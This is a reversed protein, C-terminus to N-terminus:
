IYWWPKSYLIWTEMAGLVPTLGQARTRGSQHRPEWLLGDLKRPFGGRETSIPTEMFPQNSHHSLLPIIHLIPSIDWQKGYITSLSKKFALDSGSKAGKKICRNQNPFQQIMELQSTTFPQWWNKMKGNINPIDDDWNVFEYKESPHGLWWGALFYAHAVVQITSTKAGFCKENESINERLFQHFFIGLRFFFVCHCCQCGWECAKKDFCDDNTTWACMNLWECHCTGRFFIIGLSEPSPRHMALIEIHFMVPKWLPAWPLLFQHIVAFWLLVERSDLYCLIYYYLIYYYLIYYYIYIDIYELVFLDYFSIM